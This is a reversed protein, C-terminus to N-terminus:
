SEKGKRTVCSIGKGENASAYCGNCSICASPWRDGARWRKVLDPEAILPRALSVYDATGARVLGEAVGYSRIGGVLMLPVTVNQKFLIAAERYYVEQEPTLSGQRVPRFEAPSNVTGGSFEIADVSANSLMGSAQVVEERTLGGDMFDESSLKILLPYESGVEKRVSQVVELVFRVRNQLTGGYEDTRKNFAPSLFQNILFGHGGHLEVADFGAAKARGAAKAFASVINAIEEKRAERCIRKGDKHRVSAGVSELGSLESSSNCGGHVIQLAIKGGSSHVAEVMNKLGPVLRDDYVALQWPRSRGEPSIFTFGTIILGVEGKALAVMMDKLRPTVAGEQDALGEWTAARVFRNSLHMGNISTGEFLEAKKISGSETNIKASQTEAHAPRFEATAALAAALGLEKLFDRRNQDM